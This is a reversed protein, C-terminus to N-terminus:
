DRNVELVRILLINHSYRPNRNTNGVLLSWIAKKKRKLINEQILGKIKFIKKYM